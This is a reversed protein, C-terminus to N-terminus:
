KQISQQKLPHLLPMFDPFFLFGDFILKGIDRIGGIRSERTDPVGGNQM